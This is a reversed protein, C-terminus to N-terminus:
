PYIKTSRSQPGYADLKAILLDHNLCGFAKSLDTLIAGAYEKDDLAKKWAELMVVLCQEISHGKGFGFIFPSLSEEIFDIIEVYM